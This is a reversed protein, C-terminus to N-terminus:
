TNINSINKNFKKNQHLLIIEFLFGKLPLAYRITECFNHKSIHISLKIKHNFYQNSQCSKIQIINSIKQSKTPSRYQFKFSKIPKPYTSM